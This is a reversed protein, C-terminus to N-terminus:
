IVFPVALNWVSVYESDSAPASVPNNTRRSLISSLHFIFHQWKLWCTNVRPNYMSPHKLPPNFRLTSYSRFRKKSHSHIPKVTHIQIHSLINMLTYEMPFRWTFPDHFVTEEFPVTTTTRLYWLIGYSPFRPSPAHWCWTCIAVPSSQRCTYRM